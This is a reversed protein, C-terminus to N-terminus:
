SGFRGTPRGRRAIASLRDDFSEAEAQEPRALRPHHDVEGLRGADGLDLRRRDGLARRRRPERDLELTALRAAKAAAAARSASATAPAAGAAAAAGGRRGGIPRDDDEIGAVAPDVAAGEADAARDLLRQDVIVRELQLPPELGLAPELDDQGAVAVFEDREVVPHPDGALRPRRQQDRDVGVHEAARPGVNGARRDVGARLASGVGLRRADGRVFVGGVLRGADLVLRLRRADGVDQEVEFLALGAGVGM